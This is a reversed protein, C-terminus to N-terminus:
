PFVSRLQKEPFGAVLLTRLIFARVEPTSREHGSGAGQGAARANEHPLSVGPGAQIGLFGTIAQLLGRQDARSCIDIVLLDDPRDSFYAMVRRHYELRRAVWLRIASEPSAEYEQRMPGTAGVSRRYEVHRVRSVLWDDLRRTTLIFKSGPFREDLAPFDHM